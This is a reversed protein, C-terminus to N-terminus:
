SPPPFTLSPSILSLLSPVKSRVRGPPVVGVSPPALFILPQGKILPLAYITMTAPFTALFKADNRKRKREIKELKKALKQDRKRQRREEKTLPVTYSPTPQPSTYLLPQPKVPSFTKLPGHMFVSPSPFPLEYAPEEIIPPATSAM